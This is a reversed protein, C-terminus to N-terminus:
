TETIPLKSCDQNKTVKKDLFFYISFQKYVKLIYIETIPLNLCVQNKTVKKDLLFYISFKGLSCNSSSILSFLSNISNHILLSSNPISDVNLM